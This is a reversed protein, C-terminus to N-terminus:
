GDDHYAGEVCLQQMSTAVADALAGCLRVSFVVLGYDGCLDLLNLNGGIGRGSLALHGNELRELADELEGEDVVAKGATETLSGLGEVTALRVHANQVLSALLLRVLLENNREAGLVLDREDLNRVALL